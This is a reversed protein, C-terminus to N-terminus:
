RSIYPLEEVNFAQSIGHIMFKESSFIDPVVIEVGNIAVAQTFNVHTTIELNKDPILTRLTAKEPLSALERYTFRQPLIHFRVIRDLFPSPSAVFMLGMPVFITVSSLDPYDQLIGQFVSHLGISFSVFGNSGLLRVIRTWEVMNMSENFKSTASSNSDCIPSQTIDWDQDTGRLDLSSFPGLVGHISIPGELFMDPHSILVNNIEISQQRADTKTIAINKQPVLTPLCTGNPKKLLERMSLKSPSTHYQLLQKMVWSPVFVMSIAHDQIAFITSESSSLFLEPSILLFAAIVNFGNQRLARSANLSLEHKFTQNLPISNNPKSHISASIAIVALTISLAFYIPAHWWNSCSTAMSICRQKRIYCYVAAFIATVLGGIIVGGGAMSKDSSHHKGLRRIEPPEAVGSEEGGESTSEVAGSSVPPDAVSGVVGHSADETRIMVKPPNLESGESRVAMAQVMLVEALIFFVLVFRGM